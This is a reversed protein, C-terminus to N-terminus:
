NVAFQASANGNCNGTGKAVWLHSGLPAGAIKLKMPFPKAASTSFSQAPLGGTEVTFNCYGTGSAEIWTEGTHDTYAVQKIGTLSAIQLTGPAPMQVVPGAAPRPSIGIVPPMSSIANKDKVTLVATVNAQCIVAQNTPTGPGAELTYLGPELASFSVAHEASPAGNSMM